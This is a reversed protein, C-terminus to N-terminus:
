KFFKFFDSWSWLPKNNSWNGEFTRGDPYTCTGRGQMKGDKFEGEYVRGDSFSAYGQGSRQGNKFEGNYFSGDETSNYTGLGHM